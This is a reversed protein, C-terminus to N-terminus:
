NGTKNDRNIVSSSKTSTIRGKNSELAPKVRNTEVIPKTSTTLPIAVQKPRQSLVVADAVTSPKPRTGSASSLAPKTLSTVVSQTKATSLGSKLFPRQRPVDEMKCKPKSSSSFASTPKNTSEIKSNRDKSLVYPPRNSASTSSSPKSLIAGDTKSSRTEKFLPVKSLLTSLENPGALTPSPKSLSMGTTTCKSAVSEELLPGKSALNAPKDRVAASSSQKTRMGATTSKPVPDKSIRELPKSSYRSVVYTKNEPVKTTSREMYKKLPKALADSELKSRSSTGLGIVSKSESKASSTLGKVSGALTPGSAKNDLTTSSKAANIKSNTSLVIHKSTLSGLKKVSINDKQLQILFNQSINDDNPALEKLAAFAPKTDVVDKHNVVDENSLLENLNNFTPRTYDVIDEQVTGEENPSLEKLNDLARRYDYDNNEEDENVENFDLIKPILIKSSAKEDPHLTGNNNDHSLIPEPAVSIPTTSSVGDHLHNELVPECLEHGSLYDTKFESGSSDPSALDRHTRDLVSGYPSRLIKLENNINPSLLIPSYEIPSICCKKQDVISQSVSGEDGIKIDVGCDSCIGPRSPQIIPLDKDTLELENKDCFGIEAVIEGIFQSNNSIQAYVIEDASSDKQEIKEM